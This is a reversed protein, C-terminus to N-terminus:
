GRYENSVLSLPGWLRDPRRPTSFFRAEVPVRVGVGRGESGYGTARGVVSDRSIVSEPDLDYITLHNFSLYSVM